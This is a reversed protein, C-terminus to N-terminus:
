GRRILNYEIMSHLATSSPKIKNLHFLAEESLENLLKKSEDYGVLKTFSRNDQGSQGHDLIDDAVQFALGLAQGYKRLVEVKFDDAGLIIAAGQVPAEIMQATKMKHILLLDEFTPPAKDVHMDLVQGGVMGRTGAATSLLITLRRAIEPNDSYSESIVLFSETLLGDGALLALADGFVKHNTPKGRRLDDNDMCPLDDHILSYTHVMEVAAAWPLLQEESGGFLEAVFLALLPRFRKGGSGVSYKLSKRYKELPERQPLPVSDLYQELFRNVKDVREKFLIQFDAEVHM